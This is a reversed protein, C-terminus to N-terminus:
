EGLSIDILRQILQKNDVGESAFLKCFMDQAELGPLTHVQDIFLQEPTFLLDVQAVGQLDLMQFVKKALNQIEATTHSDLPAPIISETDGLREGVRSVELHRKGIIACSLHRVNPISQEVIIRDHLSIVQELADELGGLTTVKKPHSSSDFNAPQVLLPYHLNQTITESVTLIDTTIDEKTFPLFPVQPLGYTALLKKMVIKDKALAGGLVHSGLFPVKTYELIGQLTGDEGKAGHIIPLFLDIKQFISPKGQPIIMVGPLHSTTSISCQALSNRSQNHKFTMLVQPGAYMTGDTDIGIQLVDYISHNINEIVHMASRLSHEHEASQGGFIIAIVPKM